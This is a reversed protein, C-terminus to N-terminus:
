KENEQVFHRASAADSDRVTPPKGKKQEYNTVTSSIYQSVIKEEPDIKTRNGRIERPEKPTPPNKEPM